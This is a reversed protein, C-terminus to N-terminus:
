FYKKFSKTEPNQKDDRRYAWYKFWIIFLFKYKKKLNKNLDFYKIIM